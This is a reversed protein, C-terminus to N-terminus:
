SRHKPSQRNSVNVNIQIHIRTTRVPAGVDYGFGVQEGEPEPPEVARTAARTRYNGDGGDRQGSSAATDMSESAVENSGDNNATADQGSPGPQQSSAHSARRTRAGESQMNSLSADLSYLLLFFLRDIVTVTSRTM